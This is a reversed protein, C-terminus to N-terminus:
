SIAYFFISLRHALGGLGDVPRGFGDVPTAWARRAAASDAWDGCGGSSKGRGGSM